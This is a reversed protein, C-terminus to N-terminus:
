DRALKPTDVFLLLGRRQGGRTWCDVSTLRTLAGELWFLTSGQAYNWRWDKSGDVLNIEDVWKETAVRVAIQALSVEQLGFYFERWGHEWGVLRFGAVDVGRWRTLFAGRIADRVRGVGRDIRDGATDHPNPEREEGLLWM